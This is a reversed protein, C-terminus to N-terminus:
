KEDRLRKLKEQVAGELRGSASLEHKKDLRTAEKALITRFAEFSTGKKDAKAGKLTLWIVPYKGMESTYKEGAEMIKLGEFLSPDGGEEFFCKLMNLNLTKGFRRPRTFLNVEGKKDLLEKIFLTKDVYYYKERVQRFDDVGVPMVYHQKM